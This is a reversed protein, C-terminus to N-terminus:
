TKVPKKKVLDVFAGVIVFGFSSFPFSSIAGLILQGDSRFDLSVAWYVYFGLIHLIFYEVLMIVIIQVNGLHTRRSKLFIILLSLILIGTLAIITAKGINSYPEKDVIFSMLSEVYVGPFVTAIPVIYTYTLVLSGITFFSGIITGNYLQNIRM